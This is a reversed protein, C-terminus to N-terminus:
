RGRRWDARINSGRPPDVLNVQASVFCDRRAAIAARTPLGPKSGRQAAAGPEREQSVSAPWFAMAHRDSSEIRTPITLPFHSPMRAGLM